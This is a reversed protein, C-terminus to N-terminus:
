MHALLWQEMILIYWIKETWVGRETYDKWYSAVMSQDILGGLRKKGDSIIDEAWSRM